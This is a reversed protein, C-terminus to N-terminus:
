SAAPRRPRPRPRARDRALEACPLPELHERGRGPEHRGVGQAAGHEEMRREELERRRRERQQRRHPQDHAALRPLPHQEAEPAAEAQLGLVRDDHRQRGEQRAAREPPAVQQQAALREEAHQDREASTSGFTMQSIVCWQIESSKAEDWCALVADSAGGSVYTPWCSANRPAPATSTTSPRTQSQRLGCRRGSASAEPAGLM